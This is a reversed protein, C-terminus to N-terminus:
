SSQSETSDKLATAQFSHSSPLTEIAFLRQLYDNLFLGHPDLEARIRKFDDWRPYLQALSSGNQTHMKGWHPRGQYRKFIEEIQQFYERYPMGRYMHVAIYASPRQYAPSLWIDDEHVFRCEVPFHVRTQQRTISEKIEALVTSFHEAPINYEMEQFRVMRPTAYLRHSYDVEKVSAVGLASIHSISKSASPFLRCSESLLWYLGNELVVKNFRGWLNSGTVTATTENLFKTQVAETHPFWYFEFHNNKNKYDEIQALCSSLTERRSEFHLKKAPVVRLKVKVIIGLMGLSVQAAKFIEPHQENSCELIEGNATILTFGEIQTSLSGFQIGTGHTGTSIAGAISQVDIDGLNEQAMGQALLDAGLRKLRTGALVIATSSAADVSEIGQLKDLSLLIDNTKVLPTFSHGAGVVRVHRGARNYSGILRALEEISSPQVFQRVHSQISGSWNHWNYTKELAM